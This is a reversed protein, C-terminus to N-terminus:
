SLEDRLVFEWTRCTRHTGDTKKLDENPALGTAGGITRRHEYGEYDCPDFLFSRLVIYRRVPRSTSLQYPPLPPKKALRPVDRFDVIFIMIPHSYFRCMGSLIRRLTEYRLSFLDEFAETAERLSQRKSMMRRIRITSRTTRMKTMMMPANGSKILLRSREKLLCPRLHNSFALSSSNTQSYTETRIKLELM